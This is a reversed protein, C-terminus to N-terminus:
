QELIMHGDAVQYRKLKSLFSMGLLNQGLIDDPLVLARVDEVRIGGLEIRDITAPAAKVKGNATSVVATYDVPMPHIGIRRADSERLIVLTAGTDVIFDIGHGFIRAETEFHGGRGSDLTLSRGSSVPAAQAVPTAAVAVNQKPKDFAHDITRVAYGGAVLVLSAVILMLRVM